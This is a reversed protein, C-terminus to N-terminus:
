GGGGALAQLSALPLGRSLASMAPGVGVAQLFPRRTVANPLLARVAAAEVFDQSLMDRDRSRALRAQEAARDHAEPSEHKGCACGTLTAHESYPRFFNNDSM